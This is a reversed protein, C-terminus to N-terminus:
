NALDVAFFLYMGGVGKVPDVSKGRLSVEGLTKEIPWEVGSLVSVDAQQWVHLELQKKMWVFIKWVLGADLYVLPHFILPPLEVPLSGATPYRNDYASAQEHLGM